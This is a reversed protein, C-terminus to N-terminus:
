REFVHLTGLMSAIITTSSGQALGLGALISAVMLLVNYNSVVSLVVSLFPPPPFFCLLVLSHAQCIFYSHLLVTYTIIVSPRWLVCVNVGACRCLDNQCHTREWLFFVFFKKIRDAYTHIRTQETLKLVHSHTHQTQTTM